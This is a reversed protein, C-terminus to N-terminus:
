KELSKMLASISRLLDSVSALVGGEETLYGLDEAILIQTEVEALSGRAMSLFRAFEKKGTRAAGEAINSPVSVAARGLQSSLGYQEDKPFDRTVVYVKRVLAM